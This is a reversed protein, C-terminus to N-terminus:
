ETDRRMTEKQPVQCFFLLSCRKIKFSKSFSCHYDVSSILLKWSCHSHSLTKVDTNQNKFFVTEQHFYDEGYFFIIKYIYIFRCIRFCFM